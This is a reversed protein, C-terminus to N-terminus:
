SRRRVGSVFCCTQKEVEEFGLMVESMTVHLYVSVMHPSDLMLSSADTRYLKKWGHRTKTPNPNSVPEEVLHGTILGINTAAPGRQIWSNPLHLSFLFSRQILTEDWLHLLVLSFQCISGSGSCLAPEVSEPQNNTIKSSPSLLLM